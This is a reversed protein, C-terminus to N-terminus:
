RVITFKQNLKLISNSSRIIYEGSSLNDVSISLNSNGSNLTVAQRKVIRGSMDLVQLETHIAKDTRVAIHLVDRAPIPYMVVNGNRTNNECSAYRVNTYTFSGNIDVQRIRYQAVGAELDLYQYQHGDNSNGAATIQDITTWTGNVNKQIEFHDSNNETATTWSISTGKDGCNVEYNTFLVPLTTGSGLPIPISYSLSSTPILDGLADFIGYTTYEGPSGGEGSNIMAFGGEPSITGLTWLTVTFAPTWATTLVINGNVLIGNARQTFTQTGITENLPNCQLVANYSYGASAFETSLVINPPNNQYPPAGPCTVGTPLAAMNSQFSFGTSIATATITGSQARIQLQFQVSGQAPGGADPDVNSFGTQVLKWEATQGWANFGLFCFTLLYVVIKSKSYFNKM